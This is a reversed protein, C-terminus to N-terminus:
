EEKKEGDASDDSSKEGEEAGEEAEAAELAAEIAEGEEGPEPVEIEHSVIVSVVSEEPNGMLEVGEPLAIDAASISDNVHLNTVDVEIVDPIKSPICAVSLEHTGVSVIGDEEAAGIAEGIFRLPIDLTVKEGKKLVLFDVHVIENKLYNRELDKVLLQRGDLAQDDSKTTYIQSWRAKRGLNTFERVSVACPTAELETGYMVAPLKGARRLRRCAASGLETRKEVQLPFLEM